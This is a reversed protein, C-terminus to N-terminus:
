IQHQDDANTTTGFRASHATGSRTSSPRRAPYRSMSARSRSAGWFPFTSTTPKGSSMNLASTLEADVGNAEGIIANVIPQLVSINAALLAADGSFDPGPVITDSLHDVEMHLSHAEDILRRLDAQVKEIGDAAVDGARAVTMAEEGHTDLDDRAKQIAAAAAEAGQGVWTQFAPLRALGDAADFCAAARTRAAHSVDRVSEASCRDIDAVCLVV